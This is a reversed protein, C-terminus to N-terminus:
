TDKRRAVFEWVYRDDRKDPWVDLGHKARWANDLEPGVSAVPLSHDPRRRDGDLQWRKLSGNNEWEDSLISELVIQVDELKDVAEAAADYTLRAWRSPRLWDETARTLPEILRAAAELAGYGEGVPPVPSGRPANMARERRELYDQALSELKKGDKDAIEALIRIQDLEYRTLTSKALERRDRPLAGFGEVAKAFQEIAERERFPGILPRLLEREAPSIERGSATRIDQTGNAERALWDAIDRLSKPIGSDEEPLHASPKFSRRGKAGPESELPFELLDPLKSQPAPVASRIAASISLLHELSAGFCFDAVSFPEESGEELLSKLDTNALPSSQAELKTRDVRRHRFEGRVWAMENILSWRLWNRALDTLHQHKEDAKKTLSPGVRTSGPQRFYPRDRRQTEINERSTSKAGFWPHNVVWEKTWKEEPLAVEAAAEFAEKVSEQEEEKKQEDSLRNWARHRRGETDVAVVTGIVRGLEEKIAVHMWFPRIPQLNEVIQGRRSDVSKVKLGFTEVLPHGPVLNIRVHVRQEIERLDYVRTIARETHVAAQYCAKSIEESDRYQKLTIRNLPAQHALIELALSKASIVETEQAFSLRTKRKLDEAADSGWGDRVTGWGTGDGREFVDGEDIELLAGMASKQGTNVASFIETEMKLAKRTGAPGESNWADHPSFINAHVSSRGNVERDTIVARGSDAYVFPEILAMSILNESGDEHTYWKVPVCFSVEREAWWGINNTSSWMTGLKDGVVSVILYVYSGAVKFRLQPEMGQLTKNLYRDVFASLKAPDALLPYVQVHMDPFHFPGVVPQTAAGLSTNYKPDAPGASELKNARVQAARASPSNATLETGKSAPTEELAPDTQGIVSVTPSFERVWPHARKLAPEAEDIWRGLNKQHPDLREGTVNELYNTRSCILKGTGYWLDNDSWIPFTPKLVATRGNGADQETRPVEIGLVEVIPQAAYQNLRITYGGAPDGRLYGPDGLLGAQNIRNVGMKSSVLAQYCALDPQEPDRFQKLTVNDLLLKPLGLKAQAEVSAWDADRAPSKLKSNRRGLITPLLDPIFDRFYTGGKSAMALLARLNSDNQFGRIRQATLIDVAEGMLSLSNRIANPVITLPSWPNWADLPFESFTGPPEYDVHLLPAMSEEEGAYADKFIPTHLSFLRTPERPHKSWLPVDRGIECLVKPWGYVERGTMQSLQDDVYIFPSVSAWDKFVLKGNERRWRQLAVTFTVEHQAVWGANQAQVSAASMSGYNLVMLYVYPLAPTFHVIEQPIDMNLYKDCFETLRSINAKLPFVRTTVEHFLFPPEVVKIGSIDVINPKVWAM